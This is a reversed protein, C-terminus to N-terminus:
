MGLYLLTHNYTVLGMVIHIDIVKISLLNSIKFLIKNIVFVVTMM